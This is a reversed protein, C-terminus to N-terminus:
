TSSISLRFMLSEVDEYLIFRFVYLVRFRAVRHSPVYTVRFKSVLHSPVYIRVRAVLHSPVYM